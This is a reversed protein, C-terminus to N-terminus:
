LTEGGVLRVIMREATSASTAVEARAAAGTLALETGRTGLASRHLVVVRSVIAAIDTVASGDHPLGNGDVRVATDLDDVMTALRAADAVIARAREHYRLAAPGLLQEDIMAAFGQIANIPTRLEHVSQRLSDPAIPEASVEIREGPGARRADGRHGCFRGDRPNFLPAATILWDGGAAGMGSVRLRADRFPARRRCADAAQGDVGVGGAAALEAISLGLVAERPCGEVWDIIGDLSTEFVLNSAVVPEAPLSVPAFQPKRERYAAIRDVLDRIQTIGPTVVAAEPSSGALALDTPAFRALIGIADLPLDFLINRSSPPM